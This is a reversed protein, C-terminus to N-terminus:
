CSKLNKCSYFELTPMANNHIENKECTNVYALLVRVFDRTGVEEPSTVTVAPLSYRLSVVQVSDVCDSHVFVSLEVVLM